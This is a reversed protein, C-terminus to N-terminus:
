TRDGLASESRDEAHRGHGSRQQAAQEGVAEAPSPREVDADGDSDHDDQKGRPSPFRRDEGGNPKTVPKLAMNCPSAGAMTRGPRSEPVGLNVTSDSSPKPVALTSIEM